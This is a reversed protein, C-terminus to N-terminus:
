RQEYPQEMAVQGTADTTIRQAQRTARRIKTQTSPAAASRLEDVIKAIHEIDPQEFIAQLPLDVGLERRVWAVAQTALISDGGAAFFDDTVGVPALRLVREWIAVLCQETVTHPEVRARRGGVAAPAPPLVARDIKRNPPPNVGVTLRRWEEQDMLSVSAISQSPDGTMAGLARIYARGWAAVLAASFWSVDYILTLDLHMSSPHRLFQTLFPFDTEEFIDVGHVAMEPLALVSRYAHFHVYNFGAVFPVRGHNLRKIAMLPFYRHALIAHEERLLRRVFTEWSEERLPLGLPVTNLFMGLAHEADAVEPRIHITYATVPHRSGSAFALVQLHAALLLTKLPVGLRASLAHLAEALDRALAVEYRHVQRPKDGSAVLDRPLAPVEESLRQLWFDRSEQRTEAEREM